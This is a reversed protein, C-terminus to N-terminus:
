IISTLAFVHEQCSRGKRLGNQEDVIYDHAYYYDCLRANLIASLLKSVCSILSIGRYNLPVCPDKTAGKPIPKIMAQRWLTPVRSHKFCMNLFSLLLQVIGEHKLVKNPVGDIGCSKNVKLKNIAELLEPQSIDMNIDINEAYTENDMEHERMEVYQQAHHLFENNYEGDDIDINYLSSFDNRWIELVAHPETIIDGNFKVKMPIDSKTYPGLNKLTQWFRRPNNQCENEIAEIKSRTYAREYKRLYRDFIRRKDIFKTRLESKIRAAGRCGRCKVYPKASDRMQRWLDGLHENWYPKSNKHRKRSKSSDFSPLFKDMEGTEVGILDGYLSDIDGTSIERHKNSM